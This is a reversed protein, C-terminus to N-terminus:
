PATVVVQWQVTLPYSDTVNTTEITYGTLVTVSKYCNCSPDYTPQSAYVPKQTQVTRTRTATGQASVVYTGAIQFTFMASLVGTPASASMSVTASEGESSDFTFRAGSVVSDLPNPVLMLEFRGNSGATLNKPGSITATIGDTTVSSTVTSPAVIAGGSLAPARQTDISTTGSATTPAASTLTLTYNGASGSVHHLDVLLDKSDNATTNSWSYLVNPAHSPDATVRAPQGPAEYIGIAYIGDAPGGSLAARLQMTATANTDTVAIRFWDHTDSAAHFSGNYSHVSAASSSSLTTAGTPGDNGPEGSDPQVVGASSSGATTSSSSATSSSVNTTASTSATASTSSSLTTPTGAVASITGTQFTQAPWGLTLTYQGSAGSVHHVDILLTKTDNATTNPWSHTTAPAHSPGAVIRAPTGPAEYIGIEYIGDAPGGSLSVALQLTATTEADQVRAAFWDHTDSMSHFTANATYTLGSGPSSATLVPAGTPIDNSPESADPPIPIPATAVTLSSVPQTAITATAAPPSVATGGQAFQWTCNGRAQADPPRLPGVGGAVVPSSAGTTQTKTLDVNITAFLREDVDLTMTAPRQLSGNVITDTGKLAGRGVLQATWRQITLRDAHKTIAITTNTAPVALTWQATGTNTGLTRRLSGQGAASWTAPYLQVNDQVTPVGAISWTQVERHAYSTGQVDFQCQVWGAWPSDATTRTQASTAQVTLAWSLAVVIPRGSRRPTAIM